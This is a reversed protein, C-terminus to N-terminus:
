RQRVLKELSIERERLAPAIEGLWRRGDEPYGATPRVTPALRGFWANFTDMALERLYKAVLSALAVPFSAAEARPELRIRAERESARERLLYESRGGVERARLLEWGPLLAEFREGYFRRGGQRDIRIEFRQPEPDVLTEAVLGGVSEWAADAKNQCRELAANFAREPVCRASAGVWRLGPSGAGAELEARAADLEARTAFRPIRAALEAYWPAGAALEAPEIGARRLAGAADLGLLPGEPSGCCLAALAAAEGRAAGRPGRFVLKSDAVILARSAGEFARKWAAPM